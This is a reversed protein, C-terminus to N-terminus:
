IQSVDSNNKTDRTHQREIKVLDDLKISKNVSKDDKDNAPIEKLLVREDINEYFPLIKITKNVDEKTNSDIVDVWKRVRKSRSDTVMEKRMDFAIKNRNVANLFSRKRIQHAKKVVDVSQVIQDKSPFNIVSSM